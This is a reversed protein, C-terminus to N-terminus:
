CPFSRTLLDLLIQFWQRIHASFPKPSVAARAQKLLAKGPSTPDTHKSTELSGTTVGPFYPPLFRTFLRLRSYQDQDTTIFHASFTHSATSTHILDKQSRPQGRQLSLNLAMAQGWPRSTDHGTKWFSHLFNEVGIGVTGMALSFSFAGSGPSPLTQDPPTQPVTRYSDVLCDM